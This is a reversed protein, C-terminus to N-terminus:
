SATLGAFELTSFAQEATLFNKNERITLYPLLMRGPFRNKRVVLVLNPYAAEM